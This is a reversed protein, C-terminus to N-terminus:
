KEDDGKGGKLLDTEAVAREDAKDNQNLLCEVRGMREQLDGLSEVMATCLMAGAKDPIVVSKAKDSKLLDRVLFRRLTEWLAYVILTGAFGVGAGMVFQEMNSM